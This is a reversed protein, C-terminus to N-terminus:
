FQLYFLLKPMIPSPPPLNFKFWITTVYNIFSGKTYTLFQRRPSRKCLKYLATILVTIEAHSLLFPTLFNGLKHSVM